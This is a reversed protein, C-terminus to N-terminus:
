KSPNRGASREFKTGCNECTFIRPSPRASAPKDLEDQPLLESQKVRRTAAMADCGCKPCEAVQQTRM